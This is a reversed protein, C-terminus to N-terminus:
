IKEKLYSKNLDCLIYNHPPKRKEKPPLKRWDGYIGTLYKDYNQPGYIKFDEFDYLTPNGLVAKDIIEKDRYAGNLNAIYRANKINMSCALKDLEVSIKKENVFVSPILRSLVISFNKYFSRGKKLVCTRTMLFMNKRDFKKFNDTAETMNNGISDLPFIDIYIGRKCKYRLDEVYTTSTDYLKAFSYLYDNNGSYPSEIYYKGIPKKFMRILRNYDERPVGIDIDDDWPIFGKHRVAGIMTGGMAYYTIKNKICFAHFWKLMDLLKIQMKNM